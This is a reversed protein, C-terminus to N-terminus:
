QAGIRQQELLLQVQELRRGVQEERDMEVTELMNVVLGYAHLAAEFLGDIGDLRGLGLTERDVDIARDEVSMRGLVAGAEEVESLLEADTDRDRGAIGILARGILLMEEVPARGLLQKALDEREALAFAPLEHVRAKEEVEQGAILLIVARRPAHRGAVDEAPLLGAIQEAFAVGLGERLQHFGGVPVGVAGAAVLFARVAHRM